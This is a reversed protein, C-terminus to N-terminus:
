FCIYTDDTLFSRCCKHCKHCEGFSYRQLHNGVQACISKLSLMGPLRSDRSCPVVHVCVCVRACAHVYVYMLVVCFVVCCLVCVRARACARVCVSKFVLM